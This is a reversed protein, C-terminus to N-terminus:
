PSPRRFLMIEKEATRRVAPQRDAGTLLSLLRIGRESLPPGSFRCIAGTARAVATMLIDNNRDSALIAAREFAALARGGPDTGLSAICEAARARVHPDSDAMFIHVLSDRQEISAFRALLELARIRHQPLITSAPRAHATRATGSLALALLIQATPIEAHGPGSGGLAKAADDLILDIGNGHSLLFRDVEDLKRVEALGYRRDSDGKYLPNTNNKIRDEAQYAYLVWDRGGSYVYGDDSFAAIASADSLSLTWLRRRDHTFGTAGNRGLVYIGREDALLQGEAHISTPHEWRSTGDDISFAQLLGSSGLVYISGAHIETALPRQGGKLSALPSYGDNKVKFIHGTDLAVIAQWEETEVTSNGPYEMGVIAVIHEPLTTESREGFPSLHFLTSGVAALVGGTGPHRRFAQPTDPLRQQWLRRGAPNLATVLDGTPVFLRGDFGLVVPLSLKEGLNIRWVPSGARNLAFLSGKESGAYLMGEPSRSLWPRLAERSRWTWLLRGEEGVMRIARDDYIAALSGTQAVPPGAIAAGLALRWSRLRKNDSEDASTARDQAYLPLIVGIGAALCLIRILGKRSTQRRYAPM